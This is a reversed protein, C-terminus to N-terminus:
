VVFLALTGRRWAKLQVPWVPASHTAIVKKAKEFSTIHKPNM